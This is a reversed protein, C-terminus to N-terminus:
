NKEEKCKIKKIKRKNRKKEKPKMFLERECFKIHIFLYSKHAFKKGCKNCEFNKSGTHLAIGHKALDSKTFFLKNCIDCKFERANHRRRHSILGSKDTFKKPCLDCVYRYDKTHTRTHRLLASPDAFPKSCFKCSYPREGTHIREHLQKSYVDKSLKGCYSCKSREHKLMHNDYNEKIKFRRINCLNCEYYQAKQSIAKREKREKLKVKPTKPKKKKTVKRPKNGYDYDDNMHVSKESGKDDYIDEEFDDKYIVKSESNPIETKIEVNKTQNNEGHVLSKHKDYDFELYYGVGCFCIYPYPEHVQSHMKLTNEEVFKRGCDACEYKRELDGNQIYKIYHKNNNDIKSHKQRVNQMIHYIKHLKYDDGNIFGAKCSKCGYIRQKTLKVYANTAHVLIHERYESGNRSTSKCITCHFLRDLCVKLEIM